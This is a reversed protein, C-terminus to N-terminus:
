KANQVFTVPVSLTSGTGGPATFQAGRVSRVLCSGVDASLGTNSAIDVSGVEGNPAVRVQLVVRGSQSADHTLGNQYCRRFSPRLSAIVRDADSVPVSSQAREVRTDFAPGSPEMQKGATDGVHSSHSTGIDAISGRRGPTMPGTSHTTIESGPAVGTDMAAAKGIDVPPVDGRDLARQVSSAGKMTGLLDMAMRDASALMAAEKAPSGASTSPSTPSGSDHNSPKSSTVARKDSPLAPSTAVPKADSQAEVPLNQPALKVLDVLGSVTPADTVLPDVWDSYMAGVFGFHMLFSLAAIMTLNWDIGQGSRVALPLQAKAPIPAVVFQFLITSGFAVVKGRADADLRIEAGPALELVGGELGVRAHMGAGLSLVYGGERPVFLAHPACDITLACSADSGITLPGPSRVLREEVVRGERLVGLRLVRPGEPRTISRMVATMRGMRGTSTGSAASLSADISM